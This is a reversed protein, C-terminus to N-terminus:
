QHKSLTDRKDSQFAPKPILGSSVKSLALPSKRPSIKFVYALTGFCYRAGIYGFRYNTPTVLVSSLPREEVQAQASLYPGVVVQALASDGELRLVDYESRESAGTEHIAEFYAQTGQSPLSASIEVAVPGSETFVDRRDLFAVYWAFTLAPPTVSPIEASANVRAEATSITALVATIRILLALLRSHHATYTTRFFHGIKEASRAIYMVPDTVKQQVTTADINSASPEVAAGLRALDDLQFITRGVM